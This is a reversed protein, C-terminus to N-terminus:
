FVCISMSKSFYSCIEFDFMTLCDFAILNLVSNHFISQFVFLVNCSFSYFQVDFRCFFFQPCSGSLQMPVNKHKKLLCGAFIKLIYIWDLRIIFFLYMTNVQRNYLVFIGIMYMFITFKSISYVHLRDDAVYSYFENTHFFIM